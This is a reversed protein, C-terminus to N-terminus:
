EIISNIRINRQLRKVAAGTYIDDLSIYNEVKKSSLELFEINYEIIDSDLSISSRMSVFRVDILRQHQKEGIKNYFIHIIYKADELDLTNRQTGQMMKFSISISTKNFNSIYKIYYDFTNSLKLRHNTDCVVYIEFLSSIDQSPLTLNNYPNIM